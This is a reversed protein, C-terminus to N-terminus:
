ETRLGMKRNKLSMQLETSLVRLCTFSDHAPHYYSFLSELSM